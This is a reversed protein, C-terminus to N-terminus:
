ICIKVGFDLMVEVDCLFLVVVIFLVDIVEGWIVLIVVKYKCFFLFREGFWILVSSLLWDVLFLILLVWFVGFLSSYLKVLLLVVGFGLGFGCGFGCGCGLLWNVLLLIIVFM